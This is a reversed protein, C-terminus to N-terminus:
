LRGGSSSQHVADLLDLYGDVANWLHNEPYEGFGRNEKRWDPEWYADRVRRLHVLCAALEDSLQERLEDDSPAPLRLPEAEGRALADLAAVDAGETSWIRLPREIRHNWVPWVAPRWLWTVPAKDLELLAALGACSQPRAGWTLEDAPLDLVLAVSVFRLDDASELVPGFAYIGTLVAEDEWLGAVREAREALTRLRRVATSHHM